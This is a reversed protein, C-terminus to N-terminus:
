SRHNRRTKSRGEHSSRVALVLRSAGSRPPECSQLIVPQTPVLDTTAHGDDTKTEDPRTEDSKTEDTLMGSTLPTVVNELAPPAGTWTKYLMYFTPREHIQMRCATRLLDLFRDHNVRYFNSRMAGPMTLLQMYKQLTHYGWLWVQEAIPHLTSEELNYTIGLMSTIDHFATNCADCEAAIQPLTHGTLLGLQVHREPAAIRRPNWIELTPRTLPSKVLSLLENMMDAEFQSFRDM